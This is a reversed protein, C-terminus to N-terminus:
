MVTVNIIENNADGFVVCLISDSGLQAKIFSPRYGVWYEAEVTRYKEEFLEAYTPSMTANVSIVGNEYKINIDSKSFGAMPICWTTESRKTSAGECATKNAPKNVPKDNKVYQGPRIVTNGSRQEPTTSKPTSTGQSTTVNKEMRKGNNIIFNLKKIFDETFLDGTNTIGLNTFFEFPNNKFNKSKCEDLIGQAILADDYLGEIWENGNCMINAGNCNFYAPEANNDKNEM